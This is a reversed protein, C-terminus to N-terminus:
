VIKEREFYLTKGKQSVKTELNLEFNRANLKDILLGENRADM